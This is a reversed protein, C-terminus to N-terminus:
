REAVLVGAEVKAMGRPKAPRAPIVVTHDHRAWDGHRSRTIVM